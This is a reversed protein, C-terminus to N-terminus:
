KLFSASEQDTVRNVTSIDVYSTLPDLNKAYNRVEREYDWIYKKDLLYIQTKRDNLREKM